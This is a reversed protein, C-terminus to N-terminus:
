NTAFAFYQQKPVTPHMPVRTPDVKALTVNPLTKSKPWSRAQFTLSAFRDAMAREDWRLLIGQRPYDIYCSNMAWDTAAVIYDRRYTAASVIGVDRLKRQFNPVVFNKVGWVVIAGVALGLCVTIYAATSFMVFDASELPREIWHAPVGRRAPILDFMYDTGGTPDWLYKAAPLALSTINIENDIL